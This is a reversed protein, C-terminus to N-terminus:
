GFFFLLNKNNILFFELSGYLATYASATFLSGRESEVAFFCLVGSSQSDFIVGDGRELQRAGCYLGYRGVCLGVGFGHRQCHYCHYALGANLAPGGLLAGLSLVM